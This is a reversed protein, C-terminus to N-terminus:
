AQGRAVLSLVGGVAALLAAVGLAVPPLPVWSFAPWPVLQLAGMAAAALGAVGAALLFRRAAWALRPPRWGAPDVGFPPAPPTIGVAVLLLSLAVVLAALAGLLVIFGFLADYGTAVACSVGGVLGGVGALVFFANAM